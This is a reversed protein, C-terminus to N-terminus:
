AGRLLRSIPSPDHGFASTIFPINDDDLPVDPMSAGDTMAQRMQEDADSLREAGDADTAAHLVQPKRGISNVKAFSTGQKPGEKKIVLHKIEVTSAGGTSAIWADVDEKFTRLTVGKWGVAICSKRAFAASKGDITEEYSCRRGKDEGETIEVNITVHALGIDNPKKDDKRLGYNSGIVKCTWIGDRLIAM